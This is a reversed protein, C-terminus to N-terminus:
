ARRFVRTVPEAKQRAVEALEEGREWLDGARKGLTEVADRAGEYKRQVDKRLQKGSKPATLLGALAGLGLGIAMFGLAAAYNKRRAFFESKGFRFNAM